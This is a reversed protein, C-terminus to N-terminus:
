DDLGYRGRLSTYTSDYVVSLAARSRSDDILFFPFIHTGSLFLIILCKYYGRGRKRSM